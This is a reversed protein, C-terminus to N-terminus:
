DNITNMIALPARSTTHCATIDDLLEQVAEQENHKVAQHQSASDFQQTFGLVM